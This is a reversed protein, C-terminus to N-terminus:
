VLGNHRRWRMWEEVLKTGRGFSTIHTSGGDPEAKGSQNSNKRYYIVIEDGRRMRLVEYAGNLHQNQWGQSFAWSSFEDLKAYHLLDRRRNSM